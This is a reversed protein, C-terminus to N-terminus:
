YPTWISGTRLIQALNLYRAHVGPPESPKVSCQASAKEWDGVSAYHIMSPFNLLGHLGTSYAIDLFVSQRVAGAATFWAYQSLAASLKGLKWRAILEGLELSGETELNLGFLWTLNGSTALDSTLCTVREGTKDNYPYQKFGEETKLREFTYDIATPDAM